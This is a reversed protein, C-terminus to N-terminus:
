LDNTGSGPLGPLSGARGFEPGLSSDIVQRQRSPRMDELPPRQANTDEEQTQPSFPSPQSVPHSGMGADQGM